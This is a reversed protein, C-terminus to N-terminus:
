AAHGDLWPVSKWAGVTRSTRAVLLVLVVSYARSLLLILRLIGLLSLRYLYALPSLFSRSPPLPKTVVEVPGWNSENASGM